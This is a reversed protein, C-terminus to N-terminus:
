NAACVMSILVEYYYGLVHLTLSPESIQKIRLTNWVFCSGMSTDDLGSPLFFLNLFCTSKFTMDSRLPLGRNRSDAM